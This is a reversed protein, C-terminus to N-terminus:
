QSPLVFVPAPSVGQSASSPFIHPLPLAPGGSEAGKRRAPIPATSTSDNVVVIPADTVPERADVPPWVQAPKGSACCASTIAGSAM